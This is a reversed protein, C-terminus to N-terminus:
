PIGAKASKKDVFDLLELGAKGFLEELKWTPLGLVNFYSGKIDDFLISGVGEISFGGAKDYPGLLGFYRKIDKTEIIDHIFLATRDFGTVTKADRQNIVCLGTYVYLSNSSFDDLMKKAEKVTRPKGLLKSKFYVLTDAGIIVSASYADAVTEAKKRANLIVARSPRKLVCEEKIGAPVVKHPIGCERLIRSRRRSASALIIRM